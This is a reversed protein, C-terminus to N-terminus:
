DGGKLKGGVVGVSLLLQWQQVVVMGVLHLLVVVLVLLM